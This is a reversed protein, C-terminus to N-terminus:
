SNRQPDTCRQTGDTLAARSEASGNRAKSCDSRQGVKSGLATEGLTLGDIRKYEMAKFTNFGDSLELRLLGRPYPPIAEDDDDEEAEDEEVGDAQPNRIRRIRRVGSLAEKRNEMTTQLQFASHGVEMISMVMVLCPDKQFLIEGHLDDLADPDPLGTHPLCSDSLSSLLLQLNVAHILDRTNIGPDNESLANCCGQM